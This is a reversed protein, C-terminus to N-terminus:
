AHRPERSAPWAASMDELVLDACEVGVALTAGGAFALTITDGDLTLALLELTADADPWSKRRVGTVSDLRLAARVRTRDRTEWRYRNVLLVLRRARRDYGVDGARLVASQVLASILPVEDPEQALLLLRADADAGAEVM